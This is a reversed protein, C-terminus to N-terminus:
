MCLLHLLIGESNQGGVRVWDSDCWVVEVGGSEMAM